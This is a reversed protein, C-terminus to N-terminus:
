GVQQKDRRSLLVAQLVACNADHIVGGQLLCVHHWGHRGQQAEMRESLGGEKQVVKSAPWLSCSM